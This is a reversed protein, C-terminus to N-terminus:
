HVGEGIQEISKQILLFKGTVKFFGNNCRKKFFTISTVM